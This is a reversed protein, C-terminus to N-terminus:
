KGAITRPIHGSPSRPLPAIEPGHDFFVLVCVGCHGLTREKGREGKM